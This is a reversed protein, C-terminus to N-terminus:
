PLRFTSIGPIKVIKTRFWVHCRRVSIIKKNCDEAALRLAQPKKKMFVFFAAVVTM